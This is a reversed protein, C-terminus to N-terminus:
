PAGGAKMRHTPQPRKPRFHELHEVDARVAPALAALARETVRRLLEPDAEARLNVVLTGGDLRDLLSERLDPEGDTRVLSVVALTGDAAEFTTKLHAIEAGGAALADRIDKVLRLLTANADFPQPGSLRATLNLWGLLAEGEAYLDYDLDLASPEGDRPKLLADFWAELGEGEKASVAFARARPFAAQLAAVLRDRLVPDIADTKNVVIFDAEELQKRYVYVVKESFPKGPELGLIRAARHPDVLVSLPAIEYRDGYIRRLPYSVTAVLDTCSGVPEALFVDPRTSKTLKEAAHVLSPFRCCFCGGPIEEVAFGGARLLATDVLGSSQDNSILGTRLGRAALHRALRIMATTKGAGLFGGIMVYRAKTV